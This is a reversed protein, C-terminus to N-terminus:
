RVARRGCWRPTGADRRAHILGPRPHARRGGPVPRQARLVRRGLRAAHGPFAARGRAGVVLLAANESQTLLSPGAPGQVVHQTITLGPHARQVPEVMERLTRETDGAPRRRAPRPDPLEAVALQRGRAPCRRDARGAGAAWTLADRSGDSGDVGVVIVQDRAVAPGERRRRRASRTPRSSSAPEACALGPVPDRAVLMGLGLWLNINIGAAKARAKDSVFFGAITLMVGYVLFLGGILIRIDFLKSAASSPESEADPEKSLSHTM